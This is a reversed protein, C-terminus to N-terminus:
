RTNAGFGPHKLSIPLSVSCQEEMLELTDVIHIQLLFPEVIAVRSLESALNGLWPVVM